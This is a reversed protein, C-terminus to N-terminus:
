GDLLTESAPFRFVGEVPKGIVGARSVRYFSFTLPIHPPVYGSSSCFPLPSPAKEKVSDESVVSQM